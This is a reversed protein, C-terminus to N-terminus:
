LRASAGAPTGTSTSSTTSTSSSIPLPVSSTVTGGLLTRLRPINVAPYANLYRVMDGHPGFGNIASQIHELKANMSMMFETVILLPPVGLITLISAVLVGTRDKGSLCHLILPMNLRPLASSSSVAPAISREIQALCTAL